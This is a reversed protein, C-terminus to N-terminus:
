KILMMKRTESFDGAELRYFYIGSSLGGADWEVTHEGRSQVGEVLRDVLRGTVDYIFLRVFEDRPLWYTIRVVPNFPNPQNQLLVAVEPIERTGEEEVKLHIDLEALHEKQLIQKVSSIYTRLEKSSTSSVDNLLAVVETLQPPRLEMKEGGLMGAIGSLNETIMKAARKALHPHTLLISALEESHENYLRDILTECRPNVMLVRDRYQRLVQLAIQPSGNDFLKEYVSDWVGYDLEVIVVCDSAEFPTGDLLTGAITLVVVDGVQGPGIAAAIEQRNFKLTLDDFGDPGETTCACEGGGTAPRTVDELSSRLPEVGELLLTSVDIETVDFSESGVIAAPLVGGKKSIAYENGKGEDINELWKINFPNPCSGPKIDFYVPSAEFIAFLSLFSVRACITDAETDLSVTRKEWKDDEMHFLELKSENGYSITSYDICVEISDTYLATTRIEYYTPPKGLKFGSPPPPGTSTITLSTFGAETVSDFTITVPATGTASDVPQVVVYPGV